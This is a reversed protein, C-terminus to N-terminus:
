EPAGAAPSTADFAAVAAADRPSLDPFGEISGVDPLIKWSRMCKKGAAMAPVVGIGAVDELTFADAPADEHRLDIQSTICIDAM